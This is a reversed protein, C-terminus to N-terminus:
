TKEDRQKDPNVAEDILRDLARGRAIAADPRFRLEPVTRTALTGALRRRLFGAAAELGAQVGATDITVGDPHMVTYDITAVGLDRTVNVATLVVGHVRPDRLEVRIAEALIRQVQEEVRRSRPFERSM